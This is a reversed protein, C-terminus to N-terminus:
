LLAAGSNHVHMRAYARPRRNTRRVCRISKGWHEVCAGWKQLNGMRQWAAFAPGTFWGDTLADRAM